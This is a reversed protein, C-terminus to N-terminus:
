FSTGVGVGFRIRPGGWLEDPAWRKIETAEIKPYAYAMQDIQRSEVATLRGVATVLVGNTYLVPDLFQDTVLLFRGMSQDGARPRQRRDLPLQLVTLESVGDRNHIEIIRGGFMVTEGILDGADSRFQDFGQNFTVQSRAQNSIGAACAMVIVAIGGALFLIALCRASKRNM